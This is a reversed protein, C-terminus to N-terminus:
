RRLFAEQWQVFNEKELFSKFHFKDFVRIFRRSTFVDRRRIMKKMADERYPLDVLPLNREVIRKGAPSEIKDLIKGPTLEGRLYKLAKSSKNKPDSVGEIGAVNDGSCGGIAKALSWKRAPIGYEERLDDETMIKKRALHYIDARDLLQFMDADSTVVILRGKGFLRNCWVALLDDAEYDLQIYNNHLGLNPLIEHNLQISQFLMNDYDEQEEETFDRKKEERPKKYEPYEHIRSSFGADWCTVFHNTNFKKALFLMKKLFGYVVGTPKGSYSLTGM